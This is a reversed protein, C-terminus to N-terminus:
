PQKEPIFKIPKMWVEGPMLGHEKLFVEYSLKPYFGVGDEGPMFGERWAEKSTMTVAPIILMEAVGELWHQLFTLAIPNSVQESKLPVQNTLLALTQRTSLRQAQVCGSENKLIPVLKGGMLQYLRERNWEQNTQKDFAQQLWPFDDEQPSNISYDEQWFCHSLPLELARVAQLTQRYSQEFNQDTWIVQNSKAIKEEQPSQAKIKRLAVEESHARNEVLRRLRLDEDAATTWIQDCHQALDSEILKIAEVVMVPRVCNQLQELISITVQPHVIEELRSLLGPDSFVLRGLKSRNIQGDPMKLDEGFEELISHWAPLGPLYSDQATLDADITYAGMNALFNRVVSKGSAINGTVGIVFPKTQM